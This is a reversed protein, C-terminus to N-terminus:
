FPLAPPAPIDTVTSTFDTLSAPTTVEPAPPAPPTPEPAAPPTVEIVPPDTIVPFVPTVPTVPVVQTVPTTSPTHTLGPASTTVIGPVGPTVVGPLPQSGPLAGAGPTSAPGGALPKVSKVENRMEGQWERQGLTVTAQRGMLAHALPTLDSITGLNTIYDENLGFAKMQRFFISLANANDISLVFQNHINRNAHPGSTVKMKVKIMPKGNSSTVANTETIEVSYDGIPLAEFSVTKAVAFLAKLDITTM